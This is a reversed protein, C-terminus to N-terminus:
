IGGKIRNITDRIRYLFYLLIYKKKKLLLVFIKNKINDEKKLNIDIISKEWFTDECINKVIEIRKRVNMKSVNHFPYLELIGNLSTIVRYNYSENNVKKTKLEKLMKKIENKFEPNFSQTVSNENIRYYYWIDPIVGIREANRFVDINFLTDEGIKINENFSINDITKKSFIKCVSGSMFCEDLESLKCKYGVIKNELENLDEKIYVKPIKEKTVFKKKHNTFCKELGGIVIDLNYKKIYSVGQEIFCNDIWDDSDVFCIFEGNAKRIGDNRAKSVGENKKNIYKIRNDKKLFEKIISDSSDTSGDNIIIIEISKYTQNIASELCEKLHKESNYAPIIISVLNKVM